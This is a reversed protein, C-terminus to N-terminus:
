RRYSRYGISLIPGGHSFASYSEKNDGVVFSCKGGYELVFASKQTFQFEFGGGFDVAIMCPSNSFMHDDDFFMGFECGVSGYSRIAFPRVDYREGILFKDGISFGGCVDRTETDFYSGFGGFKIANRLMFGKDSEVIPINLEGYGGCLNDQVTWFGGSAFGRKFDMEGSKDEVALCCLNMLVAMAFTVLLRKM